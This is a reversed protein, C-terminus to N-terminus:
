KVIQVLTAIQEKTLPATLFKQKVAGAMLLDLGVIVDFDRAAKPQYDRAAIEALNVPM